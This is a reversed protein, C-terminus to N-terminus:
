VHELLTEGRAIVKNGLQDIFRSVKPTKQPRQQQQQKQQLWTMIM